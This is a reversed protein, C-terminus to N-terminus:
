FCCSVKSVFYTPLLWFIQYLAPYVSNMEPAKGTFLVLAMVAVGFISAVVKMVLNTRKVNELKRCLLLSKILEKSGGM